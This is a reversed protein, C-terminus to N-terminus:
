DYIARLAASEEQVRSGLTDVASRLATPGPLNPPTAQDPMLTLAVVTRHGLDGGCLTGSANMILGGSLASNGLYEVKGSLETASLKADRLAATPLRRYNHDTLPRYYFWQTDPSLAIGDAHIAMVSDDPRLAVENGIMLHQSPDAFTSRDGVLVQRAEGSKLDLVVMSGKNGANTLYPGYNEPLDRWPAGSRLVWFIGNLVRRDNVRPVGRSKNPLLVKIAAWEFDSLEYRVIRPELKPAQIV